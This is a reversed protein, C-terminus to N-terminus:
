YEKTLDLIISINKERESERERRERERGDVINTIPISVRTGEISVVFVVVAAAFVVVAAAVLAADVCKEEERIHQAYPRM